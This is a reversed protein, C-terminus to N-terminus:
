RAGLVKLHEQARSAWPSDPPSRELYRRWLRVALEPEGSLEACLALGFWAESPPNPLEALRAFHERARDLRGSDLLAFALNVRVVVVGPALELSREFAAAAGAPDAISLLRLGEEFWEEANSPRPIPASRREERRREFLVLYRGPGDELTRPEYRSGCRQFFERDSPFSNLKTALIAETPSRGTRPEAGGSVVFRPARSCVYGANHKRHGVMTYGGVTEVIPSRAITADALGLMDITPLGTRYPILGAANVAL